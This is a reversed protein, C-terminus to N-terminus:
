LEKWEGELDLGVFLDTMIAVGRSDLDVRFSGTLPNYFVACDIGAAHANIAARLERGKREHNIEVDPKM